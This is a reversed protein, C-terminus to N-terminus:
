CDKLHQLFRRNLLRILSCRDGFSGCCFSLLSRTGFASKKRQRPSLQNLPQKGIIPSYNRPLWSQLHRSRGQSALGSAEGNLRTLRLTPQEHPRM